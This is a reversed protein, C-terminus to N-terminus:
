VAVSLLFQGRQVVTGYQEVILETRAIVGTLEQAPDQFRHPLLRDFQLQLWERQWAPSSRDSARELAQEAVKHEHLAAKIDTPNNWTKAIGRHLRAQWIYEQAPIYAMVQQYAKRAERPNGM